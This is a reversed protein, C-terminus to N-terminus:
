DLRVLGHKVALLVAQTRDAVELKDLITTIYGKVTGETLGLTRAIEKNSAGQALLTLADRERPTLRSLPTPAPPSVVQSM